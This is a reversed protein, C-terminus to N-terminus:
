YELVLKSKQRTQSSTSAVKVPIGGTITKHGEFSPAMIFLHKPALPTNVLVVKITSNNNDTLRMGM